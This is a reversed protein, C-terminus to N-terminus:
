SGATNVKVGLLKSANRWAFAEKEHDAIPLKELWARAGSMTLYPYDISFVVRDIGMIERIFLFHPLDLMGSPGVWVQDRYTQSITRSLGTVERPMTDDLRQLYFPVMEGWHGSIIKLNRHRDLAGSLILRIVQIGAEHHWGWGFLPFRADVETNFGGYYPKRVAELPPGPHIYIPADLRALQALVADFREDDIFKEDHPRGSLLTAPLRLEKVCREAERAAADPDQWPLTFFASLRGPHDKAASALRDNAAKILDVGHEAPALQPTNSLSMVQMDIGAADMAALRVSLPAAAIKISDPVFTLSPRDTPFRAPDERFRSGLGSFYPIQAAFATMTAQAVAVDNVHEELCIIPMKASGDQEKTEVEAKATPNAATSTSGASASGISLGMGIAATGVLAERRTTTLGTM